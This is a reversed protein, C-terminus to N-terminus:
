IIASSRIIKLTCAKLAPASRKRAEIESLFTTGTKMHGRLLDIEENYGDKIIGGERVTILAKESIAADILSSSDYLPDIGEYIERLAQM